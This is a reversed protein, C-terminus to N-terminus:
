GLTDRGSFSNGSALISRRRGRRKGAADNEFSRKQASVDVEGPKDERESDSSSSSSNSSGGGFLGSM